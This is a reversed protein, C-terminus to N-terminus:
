KEVRPFMQDMIQYIADLVGYSDIGIKGSYKNVLESLDKELSQMNLDEPKEDSWWDEGKDEAGINSLLDDTWEDENVNNFKNYDMVMTEQNNKDVSESVGGLKDYQEFNMVWMNRSKNKQMYGYISDDTDDPHQLVANKLKEPKGKGMRYDFYKKYNKQSSNQKKPKSEM